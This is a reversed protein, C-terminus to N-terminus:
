RRPSWWRSCGGSRWTTSTSPGRCARTSAFPIPAMVPISSTNTALIATRDEVVEDLSAFVETKLAEDEAIAENCLEPNRTLLGRIAYELNQQRISAMTLVNNRAAKLANEFNGLTHTLGNEPMLFTLYKFRTM